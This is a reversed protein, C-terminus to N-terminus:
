DELALHSEANVVRWANADAIRPVDPRIASHGACSVLFLMIATRMGANHRNASRTDVTRAVDRSPVCRTGRTARRRAVGCRHTGRSRHYVGGSALGRWAPAFM